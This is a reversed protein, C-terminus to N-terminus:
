RLQEAFVLSYNSVLFISSSEDNCGNVFIFGVILYFLNSIVTAYALRASASSSMILQSLNRCSPPEYLLGFFLM